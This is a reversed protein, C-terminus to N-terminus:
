NFNYSIYHQGVKQLLQVVFLFNHKRCIILTDNIFSSENSSNFKTTDSVQAKQVENLMTRTQQKLAIYLNLSRM